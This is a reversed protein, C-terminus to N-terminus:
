GATEAYGVTKSALAAKVAALAVSGANVDALKVTVFAVAFGEVAVALKM